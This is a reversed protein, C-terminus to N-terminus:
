TLWAEAANLIVLLKRLLGHPGAEEAQGGGSSTRIAPNYRSAVLAGMYLTARVRARCRANAGCPAMPQLAGRGGLRRAPSGPSGIGAAHALLTLSLQPGVGPVTRLLVDKERWVPSQRLTQRLQQELAALEQTLWAIHAAIHPRVGATATGLRNQEAVLM